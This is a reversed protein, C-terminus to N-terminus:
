KRCRTYEAVRQCERGHMDTINALCSETHSVTCLCGLKRAADYHQHGGCAWQMNEEAGALRRAM